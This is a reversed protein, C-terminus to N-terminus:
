RSSVSVQAADTIKRRLELLSVSMEFLRLAKILEEARGRVTGDPGGDALALGVLLEDVRIPILLLERPVQVGLTDFFGHVAEDAPVAGLYHAHGTLLRFLPETAVPFGLRRQAELTLALGREHWVHAREGRVTMLLMRQARGVSFELAARALDDSLESRCFREALESMTMPLGPTKPATARPAPNSEQGDLEEAVERWSKGYLLTFDTVDDSIGGEPQFEETVSSPAGAGDRTGGNDHGSADDLQQGLTLYRARRTVGYLEELAEYIRVEPAVWPIVRYGIAFSIEDLARLNNPDVLALHISKDEIKLPIALYEEAIDVPVARIADEQVEAFLRPSAYPAGTMTALAAGLGDEDIYGLEILSTGFHGGSILQAKLAADVQSATLLGKEVLIEGLKM